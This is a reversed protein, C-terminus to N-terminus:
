MELLSTRGYSEQPEVQKQPICITELAQITVLLFKNHGYPVKIINEYNREILLEMLKNRNCDLSSEPITQSPTNNNYYKM